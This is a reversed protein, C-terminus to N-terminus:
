DAEKAETADIGADIILRDYRVMRGYRKVAGIKAAWMKFSNVGMSTYEAGEQASLLRKESLPCYTVRKNM